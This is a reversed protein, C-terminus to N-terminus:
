FIAKLNQYYSAQEPGAVMWRRFASPNETLGVAGGSGKVHENSQEHAQDIPMSSFKNQTKLVVWSSKLQEKIGAPLSKIDEVHVPIWRAYNVHDLAFFWPALSELSKM